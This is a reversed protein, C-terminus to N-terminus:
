YNIALRLHPIARILQRRHHPGTGIFPIPIESREVSNYTM